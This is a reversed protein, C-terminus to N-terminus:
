KGAKVIIYPCTPIKQYEIDRFGAEFVIAALTKESFSQGFVVHRLVWFFLRDPIFRIKFRGIFQRLADDSAEQDTESIVVVGGPKLIRRLEKVGRLTNPWHKISGISVAADFIGEPFDINMVNGRHFSCNGLKSKRHSKEAKRVQMIAQPNKAALMRAMYGCGTGADLVRAHGQLDMDQAIHAFLEIIAAYIRRNYISGMVDWTLRWDRIQTLLRVIRSPQPLSM